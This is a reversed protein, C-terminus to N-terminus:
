PGAGPLAEIRSQEPLCSPALGRTAMVGDPVDEKHPEALVRGMSHVLLLHQWLQLRVASLLPADIDHPCVVGPVADKHIHRNGM